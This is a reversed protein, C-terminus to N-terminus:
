ILAVEVKATTAHKTIRKVKYWTAVPLGLMPVQIKMWDESNINSAQDIKLNVKLREQGYMERRLEKWAVNIVGLGTADTWICKTGSLGYGTARATGTLSADINAIAICTDLKKSDDDLREDFLGPDTITGAVIVGKTGINLLSGNLWGDMSAIGPNDPYRDTANSLQLFADTMTIGRLFNVTTALISGGASWGVPYTGKAMAPMLSIIWDLVTGVAVYGSPDPTFSIDYPTNTKLMGVYYPDYSIVTLDSIGFQRALQQGDFLLTGDYFIQIKPHYIGTGSLNDKAFILRNANTNQITFVAEKYLTDGEDYVSTIKFNPITVWADADSYYQATWKKTAPPPAHGATGGGDWLATDWLGSDWLSDVM